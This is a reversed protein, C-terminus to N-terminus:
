GLVHFTTLIYHDDTHVKYAEYDFGFKDMVQTMRAYQSSSVVTTELM